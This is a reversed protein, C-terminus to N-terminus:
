IKIKTFLRSIKKDTSHIRKMVKLTENPSYKFSIRLVDMWNTNNKKRINQIQNIINKYNSKKM